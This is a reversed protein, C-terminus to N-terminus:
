TICHASFCVREEFPEDDAHLILMERFEALNESKDTMACEGLRDGHRKGCLGCTDVTNQIPTFPGTEKPKRVKKPLAPHGTTEAGPVSVNSANTHTDSPDDDSIESAGYASGTLRIPHYDKPKIRPQLLKRRIRLM